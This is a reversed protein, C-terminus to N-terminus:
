GDGLPHAKAYTKEWHERFYDQLIRHRFRWTGGTTELLHHSSALRLFAVLQFPLIEKLFLAIRLGFHAFVSFNFRTLSVKFRQYPHRIMLLQPGKKFGFDFGDGELDAIFYIFLFVVTYFPLYPLVPAVVRNLPENDSIFITFLSTLIFSGLFTALIFGLISGLTEVWSIRIRNTTNIQIYGGNKYLKDALVIGIISTILLSILLTSAITISVQETSNMYIFAMIGLIPGVIIGISLAYILDVLIRDYWTPKVWNGQLSVLEFDALGFHAMRHALFGLWKKSDEPPYDDEMKSLAHTAFRDTIEEKRGALGTAEFKYFSWTRGRAFLLQAANLYFPTRIAEALLQDQKIADLLLEKNASQSAKIAFKIQDTTLPEIKIQHKVPADIAQRYEEIRSSVIYNAKENEGYEGLADLFGNRLEESLEDLGDFLPLIRDTDLIEKTLATSFGMQPLLEELWSKISKFRARWTAINIIIPLSSIGANMLECALQLIVTTKGAGPEGIILLRGGSENFAKRIDPVAKGPQFTVELYRAKASSTGEDSQVFKLNIPFRKALKSDLREEYSQKLQANIKTWDTAM